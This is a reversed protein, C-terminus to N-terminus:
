KRLSWIATVISLLAFVAFANWPPNPDRGAVVCAVLLFFASLIGLLPAMIRNNV